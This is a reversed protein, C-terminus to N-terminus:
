SIAGSLGDACGFFAFGNWQVGTVRRAVASLSKYVCDQYLFGKDLVEITIQQGRFERTLRSGPPPLRPDRQGAPGSLRKLFSEPPRIRLDAEEALESARRRARESLSGEAGAQLRWAVRRVLFQKHNSRSEQGFVERYKARLQGVSQYRLGDIERWLPANQPRKAISM